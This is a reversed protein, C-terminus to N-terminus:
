FPIGDDDEAAEATEDAALPEDCPRVWGDWTEMPNPKGIDKDRGRVLGVIDGVNANELVQELQAKSRLYFPTPEGPYDVFRIVRDNFPPLEDRGIFRTLLREGEETKRLPGWEDSIEQKKVRESAENFLEDFGEDPSM